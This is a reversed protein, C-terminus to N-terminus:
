EVGGMVNITITLMLSVLLATVGIAVMLEILTFGKPGSSKLYTSQM